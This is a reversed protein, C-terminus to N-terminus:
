PWALVLQPQCTVALTVKKQYTPKWETDQALQSHPGQGAGFRMMSAEPTLFGQIQFIHALDRRRGLSVPFGCHGKRGAPIDDGGRPDCPSLSPCALWACRARSQALSPQPCCRGKRGAGHEVEAGCMRVCLRVCTCASLCLRAHLCVRVCTCTSVHVTVCM